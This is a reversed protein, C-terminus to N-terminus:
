WVWIMLAIPCSEMLQEACFFYAKQGDFAFVSELLCVFDPHDGRKELAAVDLPAVDGGIGQECLLGGVKQDLRVFRM